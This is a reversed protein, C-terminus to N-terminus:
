RFFTVSFKVESGFQWDVVFSAEAGFNIAFQVAKRAFSAVTFSPFAAQGIIISGSMIPAILILSPSKM